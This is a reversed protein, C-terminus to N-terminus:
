RRGGWTGSQPDLGALHQVDEIEILRLSIVKQPCNYGAMGIWDVYIRVFSRIELLGMSSNVYPNALSPKIRCVSIGM